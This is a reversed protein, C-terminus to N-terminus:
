GRARVGPFGSRVRLPGPEQKGSFLSASCRASRPGTVRVCFPEIMRLAVIACRVEIVRLPGTECCVIVQRFPKVACLVVIARLAVILCHPEIVSLMEILCVRLVGTARVRLPEIECRPKITSLMEIVCVRLPEIM